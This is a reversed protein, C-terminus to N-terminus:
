SSGLRDLVQFATSLVNFRPDDLCGKEIRKQNNIIVGHLYQGATCVETVNSDPGMSLATSLVNLHHLTGLMPVDKGELHLIGDQISFSRTEEFGLNTQYTLISHIEKKQDTSSSGDLGSLFTFGIFLQIVTPYFFKNKSV